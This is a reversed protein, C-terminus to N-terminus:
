TNEPCSFISKTSTQLVSAPSIDLAPYAIDLGPYTYDPLSKYLHREPYLVATQLCKINGRKSGQITNIIVNYNGLFIFSFIRIPKNM